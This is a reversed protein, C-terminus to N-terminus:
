PAREPLVFFGATLGDHDLAVQARWRARRGVIPIDVVTYGPVGTTVPEGTRVVRGTRKHLQARASALLQDSCARAMRANFHSQMAAFDGNLFMALVQAARAEAGGMEAGGMEAGGMEAGGMEAGGMEGGGMEAGGMEPASTEAGGAEGSLPGFRQFAAQRSVRLADGIAAWSLGEGRAQRVLVVLVEDLVLGLSHATALASLAEAGAGSTLPEVSGGPPGLRQVLLEANARLMMRLLDKEADFPLASVQEKM